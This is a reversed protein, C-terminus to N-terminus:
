VPGALAMVTAAPQAGQSTPTDAVRETLERRQALGDAAAVLAKLTAETVAGTRRLRLAYGARHFRWDATDLYTDGITEASPAGITVVGDGLEGGEVARELPRLEPAALQWEVEHRDSFSHDAGPRVPALREGDMAGAPQM